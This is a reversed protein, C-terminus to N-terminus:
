RRTRRTENVQYTCGRSDRFVGVGREMRTTLPYITRFHGDPSIQWLEGSYVGTAPDYASDEGIINGAPDLAIEHTHRDRDRLKRLRGDRGILWLRELDTFYVRGDKTVAIARSPHASAGAGTLLLLAAVLRAAFRM